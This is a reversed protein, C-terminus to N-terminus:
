QNMFWTSDGGFEIPCDETESFVNVTEVVDPFRNPRYDHGGLWGGAKIKYSWAYVDKTVYPSKHIADIWVFDLKCVPILKAAQLSTMVLVRGGPQEGIQQIAEARISPWNTVDACPDPYDELSPYPKWPDVCLLTLLPRSKLLAVANTGRFVGIEAGLIEADEPIRELIAATRPQITM